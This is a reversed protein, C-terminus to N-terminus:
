VRTFKMYRLGADPCKKSTAATANLGLSFSCIMSSSVKRNSVRFFKLAWFQEWCQPRPRWRQSHYRTKKTRPMAMCPRSRWQQGQPPQAQAPWPMGGPWWQMSPCPMSGPPSSLAGGSVGIWFYTKGLLSFAPSRARDKRKKPTVPGWKEIRNGLPFLDVFIPLDRVWAPSGKSRSGM